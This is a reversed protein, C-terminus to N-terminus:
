ISDYMGIYIDSATYYEPNNADTGPKPVLMPKLFPGGIIGSNRIPPETISIQGDSLSYLVIFRREKDEPHVWDLRAEYRLYKSANVVYRIVDKKPPKPQLSLCSQLSDEPTGFGTHPPIVQQPPLKKKPFVNIWAPQTINLAKNFYNRTFEDCDYILFRRGLVFITNGIIFDKPAYYETIEQDTVELYLSPFNAPIDKWNKPLKTKRLLLPFPDRGDNKSHVEQVQVTDDALFYYMVYPVLESCGSPDSDRDDWVVYFRLIKGDFELFRRLKDDLVSSVVAPTQAKLVRDMTYPDPPLEEPPNLEVGQSELYEKTFSDCDITHYVIGYIPLDLGINLDKWHWCYGASNRPIRDRRVLCGQVLGSNEVPPEMVSMTDDELYYLINVHRVRYHEDPSECVSEKFFGRFLLVKKDYLVFHPVFLPPASSKSRGYTLSPDFRAEDEGARLVESNHAASIEESKVMVLEGHVMRYMRVLKEVRQRDRLSCWSLEMMLSPQVLEVDRYLAVSDSDLPRGGLGVNVPTTVRYGNRFGFKQPLHFRTELITFLLPGLVSGQPVVSTVEEEELIAEGVKVRQRRWRVFDGIWEVVRRDPILAEVKRMLTGHPVKDFAKEFDIFCADVQKGEDVVKEIEWERMKFKSNEAVMGEAGEVWKVGSDNLDRAAVAKRNSVGKKVLVGSVVARAGPFKERVKRPLGRLYWEVEQGVERRALDNRGVRILVVKAVRSGRM